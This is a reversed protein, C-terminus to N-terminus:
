AQNNLIQRIVAQEDKSYKHIETALRATDDDTHSRWFSMLDILGNRSAEAVVEGLIGRRGIENMLACVAAEAWAARREVNRLDSPSVGSEYVTRTTREERSDYCPM